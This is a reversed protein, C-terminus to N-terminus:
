SMTGRGRDGKPRQFRVGAHVDDVREPNDSSSALDEPPGVLLKGAEVMVRACKSPPAASVETGDKRCSWCWTLRPRHPNLDAM